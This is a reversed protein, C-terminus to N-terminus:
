KKRRKRRSKLVPKLGTKRWHGKVRVYEDYPSDWPTTYRDHGEVWVYGNKKKKAM